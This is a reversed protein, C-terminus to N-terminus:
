SRDSGSCIGNEVMWFELDTSIHYFLPIKAYLLLSRFNASKGGSKDIEGAKESVEPIYSDSM